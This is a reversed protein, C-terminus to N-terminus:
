GTTDKKSCTFPSSHCCKRIRDNWDLQGLPCFLSPREEWKEQKGEKGGIMINIIIRWWNYNKRNKLVQLEVEAENEQIM